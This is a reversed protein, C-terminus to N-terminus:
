GIAAAAQVSDDRGKIAARSAAAHQCSAVLLLPPPLAEFTCSPRPQSGARLDLLSGEEGDFPCHFERPMAIAAGAALDSCLDTVDRLQRRLQDLYIHQDAPQQPPGLRTSLPDTAPSAAPHAPQSRKRTHQDTGFVARNIYKQTYPTSQLRENHKKDVTVLLLAYGSVTKLEHARATLTMPWQQIDRDM